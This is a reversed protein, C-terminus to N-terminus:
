EDTTIDFTMTMPDPFDFRFTLENKLHDSNVCKYAAEGSFIPPPLGSHKCAMNYFAEKSPHLDACANFVKNWANLEIIRKIVRICDAQHILNVPNDSGGTIKGSLFRGPHRGPGVLGSFRIVTTRLEFDNMFASEAKALISEADADEETVVRNIDPYVSTSSIFIIKRVLAKKIEDVLAKIQELFFLGNYQKSRPPISIVLVGSNFFDEAEGQVCPDFKLTYPKIGLSKLKLEKDKSTTSGLVNYGDGILSVALPQGLWGCGLISITEV